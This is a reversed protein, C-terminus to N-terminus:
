CRRNEASTCPWWWGGPEPAPPCRNWVAPSPTSDTGAPTPASFRPRPRRTATGLRNCGCGACCRLVAAGHHGPPRGTAHGAASRGISLVSDVLSPALMPRLQAAPRRRDIVELVRRLAADAFIAAQRMPASAVNTVEAAPTQPQRSPQGPYARRPGRASRRRLTTHSSPRCQPANQPVDRTPPEYDVVPTVAFADRGPPTVVPSITM